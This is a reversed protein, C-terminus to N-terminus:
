STGTNLLMLPLLRQVDDRGTMGSFSLLPIPLLPIVIVEFFGGM